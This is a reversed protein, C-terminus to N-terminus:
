GLYKLYIKRQGFTSFYIEPKWRADNDTIMLQKIFTAPVLIHQYIGTKTLIPCSHHFNIRSPSRSAQYM